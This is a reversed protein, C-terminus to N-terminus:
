ELKRRAEIVPRKNEPANRKAPPIPTDNGTTICGRANPANTAETVPIVIDMNLFTPHDKWGLGFTKISSVRIKYIIDGFHIIISVIHKHTNIIGTHATSLVVETDISPFQKIEIGVSEITEYV